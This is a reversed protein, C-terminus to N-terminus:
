GQPPWAIKELMVRKRGTHPSKTIGLIRYRNDSDGNVDLLDEVQVDDNERVDGFPQNGNWQMQIFVRQPDSVSQTYGGEGDATNTPTYVYALQDIM